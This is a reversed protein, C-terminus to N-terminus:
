HNPIINIKCTSVGEVTRSWPRLQNSFSWVVVRVLCQSTWLSLFLMKLMVTIESNDMCSM